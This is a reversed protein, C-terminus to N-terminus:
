VTKVIGRSLPSKTPLATTRKTPCRMSTRTLYSLPFQYICVAVYDGKKLETPANDLRSNRQEFLLPTTAYSSTVECCIKILMLGDRRSSKTTRIIKGIKWSQNPTPYM